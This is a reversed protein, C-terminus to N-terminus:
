GRVMLTHNSKKFGHKMARDLTHEDVSFGIVQFMNKSKAVELLRAFLRDLAVHRIWGEITPNTVVSDIIGIGEADRLFGIAIKMPGDIVTFGLSPIEEETVIDMGRDWRWENLDDFDERLYERLEM